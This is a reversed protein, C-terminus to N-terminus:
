FGLGIHAGFWAFLAWFSLRRGRMWWGQAASRKSFGFIYRIVESLTDGRQKNFLAKFEVVLFQFLMIPWIAQDTGILNIWDM